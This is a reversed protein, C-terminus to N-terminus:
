RGDEGGREVHVAVRQGVLHGLRRATEVDVLLSVVAEGKEPDIEDEPVPAGLGVLRGDFGQVLRAAVEEAYAALHGNTLVYEFPEVKDHAMRANEDTLVIREVVGVPVQDRMLEYLFAVLPSTTRHQQM